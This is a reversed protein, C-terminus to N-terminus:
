TQQLPVLVPITKEEKKFGYEVGEQTIIAQVNSMNVTRYAKKVRDWVTSYPFHSQQTHNIGGKLNHKVGYEAWMLRKTGCNKTFIIFFSAKKKRLEKLISAVKVPHTLKSM